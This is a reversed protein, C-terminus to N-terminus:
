GNGGNGGNGNAGAAGGTGGLGGLGGNIGIGNLGNFGPFGLIGFSTETRGADVRPTASALTPVALSVVAIAAVLLTRPVAPTRTFRM